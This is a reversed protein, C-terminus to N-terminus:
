SVAEVQVGPHVIEWVRLHLMVERREQGADPADARVVDIIGGGLPEAGFGSRTCHACLNEVLAHDDVRILM